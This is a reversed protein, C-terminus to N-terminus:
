FCVTKTSRQGRSLTHVTSRNWHGPIRLKKRINKLRGSKKTAVANFANRVRHITVMVFWTQAMVYRASIAKRLQMLLCTFQCGTVFNNSTLCRRTVAVHGVTCHRYGLKYDPWSYDESSALGLNRCGFTKCANITFLTSMYWWRNWLTTSKTRCSDRRIHNSECLYTKKLIYHLLGKDWQFPNNIFILISAAPIANVSGNQAQALSTVIM